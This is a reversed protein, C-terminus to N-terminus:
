LQSTSSLVSDGSINIGVAAFLLVMAAGREAM